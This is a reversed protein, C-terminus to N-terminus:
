KDTVLEYIRTATIMPCGKALEIAEDMDKAEIILYGTTAERDMVLDVVGNSNLEKGGRLGVQEVIREGLSNFWAMWSEMIERNPKVFGITMLMFKKM